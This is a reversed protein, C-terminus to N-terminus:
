AKPGHKLQMLQDFSLHSLDSNVKLTGQVDHSQRAKGHARDLMKELIETGKDSAMAKAIIRMFIPSDKDMSIRTLEDKTLNLLSEYADVIQPAKLPQIGQKRMEDLMTHVLKRPRGLPNAVEGKKFQSHKPPNNKGTKERNENQDKKNKPVKPIQKKASVVCRSNFQLRVFM